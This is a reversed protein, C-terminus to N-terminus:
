LYFFWELREVEVESLSTRVIAWVWSIPIRPVNQGVGAYERIEPSAYFPAPYSAKLMRQASVLRNLTPFRIIRINAHIEDCQYLFPAPDTNSENNTHETTDDTTGETRRSPMGPLQGSISTSPSVPTSNIPSRVEEPLVIGGRCLGRITTEFERIHKALIRKTNRVFVVSPHHLPVRKIVAVIQEAYKHAIAMDQRLYDALENMTMRNTGVVPTVSSDFSLSSSSM